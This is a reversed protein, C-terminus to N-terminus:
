ASWWQPLVIRRGDATITVGFTADYLSSLTKPTLVQDAPGDAVIRGDRLAIVRGGLAAPLQLDHSVVLLSRGGHQWNKLIRILEIQYAPDLATGPEDLLTLLPDQAIAAAILAKQREGGSLADFSSQSLSTLRCLDLASRVAALDGPALRRLPSIHVFRGGAVVDWVRFAPLLDIRQPVYAAFRGRRRPPLTHFDRGNLRIAGAAGRVRGLLALLLTTKGSGNPGVVSVCQGASLTFTVNDLVVRRGRRVCLGAFQLCWDSGVPAAADTASSAPSRRM